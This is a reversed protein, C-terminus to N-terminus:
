EKYRRQNKADYIINKNVLSSKSDNIIAGEERMTGMNECVAANQLELRGGKKIHMNGKNVFDTSILSLNGEVDIDNKNLGSAHNLFILTGHRNIDFLSSNEFVSRDDFTMLGNLLVQRYSKFSSRDHAIFSSKTDINFKGHNVYRGHSILDFTAQKFDLTGKNDFSGNKFTIRSNEFAMTGSNVFSADMSNISSQNQVFFRGKNYFFSSSLNLSAKEKLVLTGHIELVSGSKVSVSADRTAMMEGRIIFRANTLNIVSGKLTASRGGKLILTGHNRITGNLEQGGQLEFCQKPAILSPIKDGKEIVTCASYASFPLSLVLSLLLAKIWFMRGGARKKQITSFAIFKQEMQSSILADNKPLLNFFKFFLLFFVQLIKRVTILDVDCFKSIIKLIKLLLVCLTLM